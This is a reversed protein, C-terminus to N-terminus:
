LQRHLLCFYQVFFTKVNEYFLLTKLTYDLAFIQVEFVTLMKKRVIKGIKTWIEM